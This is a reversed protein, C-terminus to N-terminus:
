VQGEYLDREFLFAGLFIIVPILELMHTMAHSLEGGMKPPRCHRRLLLYKSVWYQVILSFFGVIVTHPVIYAYFFVFYTTKLTYGYLFAM